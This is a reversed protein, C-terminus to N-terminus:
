KLEFNIIKADNTEPLYLVTADFSYTLPNGYKDKISVKGSVEWSNDGTERSYSITTTPASSYENDLRVTAAANARHTVANKIVDEETKVKSGGSNGCACLGLVLALAMIITMVKKM